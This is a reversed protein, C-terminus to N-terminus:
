YRVLAAVRKSVAQELLAPGVTMFTALSEDEPLEKMLSPGYLARIKGYTKGSSAFRGGAGRPQDPKLGYTWLAKPARKSAGASAPLMAYFRGGAEFSRKFVRPNNWVGSRVMGRELGKRGVNLKSSAKVSRLGRYKEIDTGGKVGYIDFALIEKRPTGRTGAVVYGNYNGPKLAMQKAVAKQVRTKTKRGADVVGRFMENKWRKDGLRDVMREFSKLARLNSRGITVHM